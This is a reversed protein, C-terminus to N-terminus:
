TWALTLAITLVTMSPYSLASCPYGRRASTAAPPAPSSSTKSGMRMQPGPRSTWLSTSTSTSIWVQMLLYDPDPVTAPASNTTTVCAGSDSVPLNPPPLLQSSVTRASRAGGGGGVGMAFVRGSQMSNIAIQARSRPDPPQTRVPPGRDGHTCTRAPDDALPRRAFQLRPVHYALVAGAPRPRSPRSRTSQFPRSSPPHPRHAISSPPIAPSIDMHPRGPPHSQPKNKPVCRLERSVDVIVEIRFDDSDDQEHEDAM